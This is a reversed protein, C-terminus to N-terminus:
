RLLPGSIADEVTWGTAIRRAITASAIGTRESWAALSLTEGRVTLFRTNRRNRAQEKIRAWRCNGPSYPGDNDIRHISHFRSPRTGMDAFFHEFKLWRDCVTIGRGGYQRFAPSKPSRCRNLMLTWIRYESTRGKGSQGHTTKSEAVLRRWACGCSRRKGHTLQYCATVFFRGCDCRCEWVSRGIYRTAVVLGFRHGALDQYLRGAATRNFAAM